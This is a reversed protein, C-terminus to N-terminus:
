RKAPGVGHRHGASGGRVENQNWAVVRAGLNVVGHAARARLPVRDPDHRVAAGVAAGFAQLGHCRLVWPQAHNHQRAIAALAHGHQGAQFGSGCCTKGVHQGHIGVALM